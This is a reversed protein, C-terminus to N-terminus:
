SPAELNDSELGLNNREFVRLLEEVRLQLDEDDRFAGKVYDAWKEVPLRLAENFIGKERNNGQTM